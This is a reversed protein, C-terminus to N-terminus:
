KQAYKQIELIGNEQFWRDDKQNLNSFGPESSLTELSAALLLGHTLQIIEYPVCEVSGDFNVPFGANAFSFEKGDKSLNITAHIGKKRTKEPELIYFADTDSLYALDIMKERNFEIAASSGTVLFANDALIQTKEIPFSAYGTCGFVSTYEGKEPLETLVKVGMSTIEKQKNPDTDFVHIHTRDCIKKVEQTTMKGISGFGIILIEDLSPDARTTKLATVTERYLEIVSGPDPVM